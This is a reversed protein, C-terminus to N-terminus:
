LPTGTEAYHAIVYGGLFLVGGVNTLLHNGQRIYVFGVVIGGILTAVGVVIGVQRSRKEPVLGTAVSTGRGVLERVGGDTVSQSEDAGDESLDDGDHSGPDIFRGTVARHAILYGWWTCFAALFALAMRREPTWLVSESICASGCAWIFGSSLSVSTLGLGALFGTVRVWDEHWADDTSEAAEPEIEVSM